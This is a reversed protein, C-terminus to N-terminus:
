FEVVVFDEKGVDCLPCRWEDDIDEFRTGPAIGEEPLGAAEDYVWGCIVCVWQKFDGEVIPTTALVAPTVAASAAPTVAATVSTAIAAAADVAVAASGAVPSHVASGNEKDLTVIMPAATSSAALRVSLGEYLARAEASTLALTYPGMDGPQLRQASFQLEVAVGKKYMM